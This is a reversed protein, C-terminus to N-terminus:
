LLSRKALLYRIAPFPQPCNGGSRVPPVPAMLRRWRAPPAALLKGLAINSKFPHENTVIISAWDDDPGAVLSPDLKRMSPPLEIKNIGPKRMLVGKAIEVTPVPPIPQAAAASIVAFLLM